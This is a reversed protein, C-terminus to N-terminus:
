TPPDSHSASAASSGIWVGLIYMAGFDAMVRIEYGLGFWAMVFVPLAVVASILLGVISGDPHRPQIRRFLTYCATFIAVNGLAIGIAPLPATKGVYFHLGAFFLGAAYGLVLSPLLWWM